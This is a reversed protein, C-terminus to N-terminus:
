TEHELEDMDALLVGASSLFFFSGKMLLSWKKALFSWPIEGKM